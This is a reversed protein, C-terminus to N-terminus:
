SCLETSSGLHLNKSYVTLGMSHIQLDMWWIRHLHLPLHQMHSLMRVSRQPDDTPLLCGTPWIPCWFVLKSGWIREWSYCHFVTSVRSPTDSTSSQKWVSVGEVDRLLTSQWSGLPSLFPYCQATFCKTQIWANALIPKQISQTFPWFCSCHMQVWSWLHTQNLMDDKFDLIILISASFGHCKICNCLAWDKGIHPVKRFVRQQASWWASTSCLM